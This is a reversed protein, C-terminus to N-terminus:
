EPRDDVPKFLSRYSARNEDTDFAAFRAAFDAREASRRELLRGVLAGLALLTRAPAKGAAAMQEAFAELHHAQVALDQYAGLTYLLSKLAKILADLRDAPYLSGFLELLYRLKKCDKRLEHLQPPPSADDIARGEKLVRRFARWIRANAVDGVPLWPTPVV